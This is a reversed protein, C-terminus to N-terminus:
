DLDLAHLGLLLDLEVQALLERVDVLHRGLLVALLVARHPALDRPRVAPATNHARLEPLVQGGLGKHTNAHNRDSSSTKRPITSRANRPNGMSSQYKFVIM